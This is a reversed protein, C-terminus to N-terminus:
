RACSQREPVFLAYYGHICFGTAAASSQPAIQEVSEQRLV